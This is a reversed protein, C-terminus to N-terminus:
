SGRGVHEKRHGVAEGDLRAPPWHKGYTYPKSRLLQIYHPLAEGEAEYYDIIRIEGGRTSQSFTIATADKMGIDWDTDVPLSPDHPVECIRGDKLAQAMQDIYWAGKIAAETSLYWEQDYEDQTMLGKAIEARDDAMATELLQITIGDETALSRDVDQWLAFNAPDEKFAEWRKYLHDKGKITGEFIAYGLHDGLGKSIVESFVNPPMQSYEDFSVGSFAMGRFSDPNDAGFLQLKNGNPYRILLESANPKAGPICESYYKLKDWMVSKAQNHLPLIHAYHRGGPPRILEDLQPTTLDPRLTLLRAREWGDDLAARQHHNITMTSKGARRHLILCAFRKFSAHFAQAWVRPQYPIVIHEGQPTM